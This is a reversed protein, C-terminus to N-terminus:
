GGGDGDIADAAPCISGCAWADRDLLPRIKASAPRASTPPPTAAATTTPPPLPLEVGAAPVPAADPVATAAGVTIAPLPDPVPEPV